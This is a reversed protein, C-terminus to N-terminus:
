LFTMVKDLIINAVEIKRMLPYDEVKGHRDIITVINTDVDFGAGKQSVDNFVIIDLDKDKLKEKTRNINRGYEASFGVIVRRGRRRSLKKLIDETKKLKLSNVEDKELKVRHTSAPAFDCVAAAMVVVDSGRLNKFVAKEMESATEVRIHRVGSPPNLPSPGSILTVEAGRRKAARAIEYGMRGSSRNSIFRVPDIYERTPGATVIFRRDKLDKPSLATIVSEMIEDVDAMRGMGEEGCALPGKVPGIFEFGRKELRKISEKVVPNNYMRHNMAPAILRIGDYALVINTLLNDAIGCAIKNITNATAPAILLLDAQDALNIHAFPDDFLGKYVPRGTLSSFTLPSVFHCAHDTLVVEVTAGEQVLRRAIDASKYAAISGTVGLLINKQKIV